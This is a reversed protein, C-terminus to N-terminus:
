LAMEGGLEVTLIPLVPIDQATIIPMDQIPHQMIITIIEVEGGGIIITTITGQGIITTIGM